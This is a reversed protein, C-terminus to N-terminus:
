MFNGSDGSEWVEGEDLFIESQPTYILEIPVNAFQGEELDQADRDYNREHIRGASAEGGLGADALADAWIRDEITTAAPPQLRIDDYLLPEPSKRYSFDFLPSYTLGGIRPMRTKSIPSLYIDPRNCVAGNADADSRPSYSGQVQLAPIPPLPPPNLVIQLDDQERQLRTLYEYDLLARRTYKNDSYCGGSCCCLRHRVRPHLSALSCVLLVAVLLGAALQVPTPPWSWSWDWLSDSPAYPVDAFALEMPFSSSLSLAPLAAVLSLTLRSGSSPPPIGSLFLADMDSGLRLWGPTESSLSFELQQVSYDPADHLTFIGRQFTISFPHGVLLPDSPVLSQLAPSVSIYAGADYDLLPTFSDTKPVSPMPQFSQKTDVDDQNAGHTMLELVENALSGGAVDFTSSLAAVFLMSM